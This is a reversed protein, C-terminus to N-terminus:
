IAALSTDRTINM